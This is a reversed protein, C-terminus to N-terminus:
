CFCKSWHNETKIIIWKMQKIVAGQTAAVHAPIILLLLSSLLVLSRVIPHCFQFGSIWGLAVSAGCALGLPSIKYKSASDRTQYGLSLDNFLVSEFLWLILQAPGMSSSYLLSFQDKILGSQIYKSSFTRLNNM